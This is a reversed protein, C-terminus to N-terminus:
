LDCPNTTSDLGVNRECCVAATVVEDMPPGEIFEGTEEDRTIEIVTETCLDIGDWTHTVDRIVSSVEPQEEVEEANEEMMAMEMGMDAAMTEM